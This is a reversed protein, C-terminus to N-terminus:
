EMTVVLTSARMKSASVVAISAVCVMAIVIGLMGIDQSPTVEEYIIAILTPIISAAGYVYRTTINDFTSAYFVCLNAFAAFFAWHARSKANEANFEEELSAYCISIPASLTIYLVAAWLAFFKRQYWAVIAHVTIAGILISILTNHLVLARHTGGSVLLPLFIISVTTIVAYAIMVMRLSIYLLEQSDDTVQLPQKGHEIDPIKKETIKGHSVSNATRLVGGSINASPIISGPPIDRPDPARNSTQKTINTKLKWQAVKLDPNFANRM